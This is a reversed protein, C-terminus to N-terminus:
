SKLWKRVDNLVDENAVTEGKAIEEDSRQLDNIQAETFHYEEQKLAIDEFIHAIKRLLDIDEIHRIKEIIKHKVLDTESMM